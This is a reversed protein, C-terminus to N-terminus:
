RPRDEVAGFNYKDIYGRGMLLYEDEKDFPDRSPTVRFFCDGAKDLRVQNVGSDDAHLVVSDRLIFKGSSSKKWIRPDRHRNVCSYFEKESIGVWDLFNSFDNPVIDQYQRVLEIGEERTMRKLRIERCAHDTVKGYGYKLFKIYDHLGASHFCAVDEYTNFTRPQICTEYNYLDIMLEHQTKSDWRIYNSLYLGRVGVIELENQFPYVFPQIDQRSIGADEDIMDFADLGMLGHEKRVRETMEVEDLHSYMGVQESWGHVGWIILPIKLRVATQVPFALTGALCHWYMSAMKRLTYRAFRKLLEPRLTYTILDCDLATSLNALNRVGIKTNYEQNFTVLLPNMGYVKKVTHVIFYSDGGGSVPIICDFSRGSVNRYNDLIEDLLRGRDKWDLVDKEEHIQCGSCVGKDNFTIGFPHNAPYLCRKCYNM